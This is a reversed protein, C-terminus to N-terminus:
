QTCGIVQFTWRHTVGCRYPYMNFARVKGEKNVRVMKKSDMVKQTRKWPRIHNRTGVNRKGGFTSLRQGFGESPSNKITWIQTPFSLPQIAEKGRQPCTPSNTVARTPVPKTTPLRCSPPHDAGEARPLTPRPHPKWTPPSTLKQRSKTQEMEKKKKEQARKHNGRGM